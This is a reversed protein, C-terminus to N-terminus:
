EEAKLFAELFKGAQSQLDLRRDENEEGQALKAVAASAWWKSPVPTGDAACGLPPLDKGMMAPKEFFTAITDVESVDLFKQLHGKLQTWSIQADNASAIAKLTAEITEPKLLQEVASRISEAVADTEAALAKANLELDGGQRVGGLHVRRFEADLVTSTGRLPDWVTQAIKLMGVGFDSNAWTVGFCLFQGPFAEFVDPLFAKLSHRLDSSTLDTPSAGRERCSEVFARLTPLSAINTNYRNSLFGRLEKGVTRHLFSKEADKKNEPELRCKHFLINLTDALHGLAVARPELREMYNVFQMKVGSKEALTALAHRHITYPEPEGKYFIQLRGTELNPQFLMENLAKRKDVIVTAAVQELINREVAASQKLRFRMAQEAREKADPVPDPPLHKSRAKVPAPIILKAQTMNYEGYHNGTANKKDGTFV